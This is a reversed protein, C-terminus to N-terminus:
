LTIPQLRSSRRPVPLRARSSISWTRFFMEIFVPLLRILNLLRLSRSFNPYISVSTGQSAIYISVVELAQAALKNGDAHEAHKQFYSSLMGKELDGLQVASLLVDVFKLALSAMKATQLIYWRNTRRLQSYLYSFPFISDRLIPLTPM